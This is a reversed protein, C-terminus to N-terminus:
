AASLKYVAFVRFPGPESNDFAGAELLHIAEDWTPLLCHSNVPITEALHNCSLPSCEPSTQACFTVVDFGVLERSRPAEVATKFSKEPQFPEWIKAQENFQQEYVEYFFLEQGVLNVSTDAAVAKLEAPSDFLWFGNHKWHHIYDCFYESICGSVSCVDEVGDAKLWHPRIEVKKAMYGAALM